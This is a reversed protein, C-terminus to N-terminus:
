ALQGSPVRVPLADWSGLGLSHRSGGACIRGCSWSLHSACSSTSSLLNLFAWRLGESPTLTVEGRQFSPFGSCVECNTTKWRHVGAHVVDFLSDAEQSCSSQEQRCGRIAWMSGSGIPCVHHPFVVQPLSGEIGGSDISNHSLPVWCEVCTSCFTLTMQYKSTWQLNYELANKRDHIM